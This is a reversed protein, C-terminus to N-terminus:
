RPKGGGSYLEEITEAHRDEVAHRRVKITPTVEGSEVTLDRPLIAFARISEARSVPANVEDIAAQVAAILQPDERAAEVTEAVDRGARWSEFADEDITILAAVFPRDDGIVLAQSVLPHARLGDELPGPAVNKGGATVILDKKRGTIRLHGDEFAGIDGTRFWGDATFVEASAKANRWYGGFVQPGKALVEGDDALRITTGALPPGVTGPRWAHARNVTLAPSTETLGYGEFIRIGIGDYFYTLREGLASAGSFACRLSGGLGARLKRYVLRDFLGHELRTLRRVEGSARQRSHSIAVDVARDFLWRRAGTGARQRAAEFAKEFVRPVAVLMTPEVMPLEDGLGAVGTGFAGKVGIEVGVLAIVRSFAHALPLFLLTRDAPSLTDQVAALIQMVNARLNGHTLVCGKPRGTTGSTYIITAVVDAGLGAIRADLTENPVGRGRRVLEELGGEDIVFVHRWRRSASSDDLLGRMAPTETIVVVSGSDDVIWRLQEAASTEYVPVTVAGTALIAYDLALWELRTRSMLSVRDGAGVGSAILGKALQRVWQLFEAATVDVFHDGVRRAAVARDPELRARRVIPEILHARPPLDELDAGVLERVAGATM